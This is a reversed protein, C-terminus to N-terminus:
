MSLRKEAVVRLTPGLVGVPALRDLRRAWGDVGPGGGFVKLRKAWFQSHYGSDLPYFGTRKLLQEAERLGYLRRHFNEKRIVRLYWEEVSWRNPLHYIVLRGGPKLVRHLQKLAEYDMATHELVGAGIVADFTGSEYPLVLPDHLQTYTLGAYEHFAAFHGPIRFDCGHLQYRDGFRARLLCSDPAHNCGWDLVAGSEPLHPTYWAFAHIQNGIFAPSSHVRLYASDPRLTIQRAYLGALLEALSERTRGADGATGARDLVPSNLATM